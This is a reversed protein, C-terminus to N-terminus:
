QNLDNTLASVISDIVELRKALGENDMPWWYISFFKLPDREPKYAEIRKSLLLYTALGYQHKDVYEAIAICLGQYVGVSGQTILKERIDLWMRKEEQVTM